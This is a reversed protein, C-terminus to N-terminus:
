KSLVKNKLGYYLHPIHHLCPSLITVENSRLSLEGAKTRYPTGSIGIIDGLKIIDHLYAFDNENKHSRYFIYGSKYGFIVV